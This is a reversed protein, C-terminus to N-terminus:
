ELWKLGLRLQRRALRDLSAAAERAFREEFDDALAQEVRTAESSPGRRRYRIKEGSRFGFRAQCVVSGRALDAVIMQGSFRGAVFAFDDRIIGETKRPAPWLKGNADAAFVVVWPLRLVERVARARDAAAHTRDLVTRLPRKTLMSWPGPAPRDAKLEDFDLYGTEVRAGATKPRLGEPLPPCPREVHPGALVLDRLRELGEDFSRLTEADARAQDDASAPSGPKIAAEAAAAARVEAETPPPRLQNAVLVAVLLVLSSAGLLVAHLGQRPWPVGAELAARRSALGLYGGVLGLPACCTPVAILALLLARKATKEVQAGAASPRAEGGGGAGRRAQVVEFDALWQPSPPWQPGAPPGGHSWDIGFDHGAECRYLDDELGEGTRVACRGCHLCAVLAAHPGGAVGRTIM